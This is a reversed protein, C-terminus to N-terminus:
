KNKRFEEERMKMGVLKRKGVVEWGVNDVRLRVFFDCFVVRM